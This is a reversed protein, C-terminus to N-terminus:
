RGGRKRPGSEQVEQPLAPAGVVDSPITGVDAWRVRDGRFIPGEVCSRVMRTAGDEGIVPLVCTMCVGIGCAMAEEVSCQSYIQRETAMAAVAELMGMPGCAYVVAPQTRELLEPLADTVLGREGVSGDETVVILNSSVRKIELTGFVRDESAGGIVVDVRCGRARLTEALMYLPASGYGGGVLVCNVPDKPIAFPKGLPGVIDIPDHRRLGAIWQTGLGHASIVIELTGGYVGTTNVSYIAFARRLLLASGEGDISLTLFHGPKTQEPIGPATMSIVHYRGTRRVDLVEGRVQVPSSM